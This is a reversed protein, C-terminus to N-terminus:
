NPTPKEISDIVIKDAPVKIPKLELGLPTVDLFHARTYADADMDLGPNDQDTRPVDFNFQGTLGTQDLIPVGQGLQRVLDGMTAHFFHLVAPLQGRQFPVMKGGGPLQVAQTPAAEGEVIPTLKHGGKSVVLAFGPIEVPVAHFVLKFRDALMARLLPKINEQRELVTMKTFAQATPEDFKGIIDFWDSSGWAPMGQYLDRAPYGRPIFAMDFTVSVPVGMARYMTPQIGWMRVQEKPDAPHISVTDFALPTQAAPTTQAQLPLSLLISTLLPAFIRLTPSRM